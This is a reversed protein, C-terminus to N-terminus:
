VSSAEEALLGEFLKHAGHSVHRGGFCRIYLHILLRGKVLRDDPLDTLRAVFKLTM